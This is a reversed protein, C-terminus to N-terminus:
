GAILKQLEKVKKDYQEQTLVGSDRLKQYKDIKNVAQNIEYNTKMNRSAPAVKNKYFNKLIVFMIFVGSLAAITGSAIALADILEQNREQEKEYSPIQSKKALCEPTDSLWPKDQGQFGCWRASILQDLLEDNKLTVTFAALAMVGSFMLGIIGPLVQKFYGKSGNGMVNGKLM